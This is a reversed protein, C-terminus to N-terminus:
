LKTTCKKKFNIKIIKTVTFDHCKPVALYM